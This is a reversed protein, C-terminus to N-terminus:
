ANRQFLCFNVQGARKHRYLSWNAPTPLEIDAPQEVYIWAHEATNPFQEIATFTEQWLNAAFPPDCFIINYCTDTQSEKLWALANTNAIQGNEAGLLSLNQGLAESAQRDLEIFTCSSAGRSLAELGLAGSGAFLDLCHSQALELQLWNFLTERVRDGTPRLGDPTPFTLKRGRWLGGIIRLQATNQPRNRNNSRAKAM